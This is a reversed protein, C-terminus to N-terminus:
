VVSKRDRMPRQQSQEFAILKEDLVTRIVGAPLLRVDSAAVLIHCNNISYLKEDLDNFPNIWGQSLRAHPPCPKLRLEELANHMTEPTIAFPTELQYVVINNFWM